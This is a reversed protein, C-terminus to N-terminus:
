EYNNFSSAKSDLQRSSPRGDAPSVIKSLNETGMTIPLERRTYRVPCFPRLSRGPLQPVADRIARGHRGHRGVLVQLSPAVHEALVADAPLVPGALLMPDVAGAEVM